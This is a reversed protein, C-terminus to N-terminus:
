VEDSGGEIEADSASSVADCVHQLEELCRVQVYLSLARRERWSLHEGRRYRQIFESWKQDIQQEPAM